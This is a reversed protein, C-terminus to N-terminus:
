SGATSSATGPRTTGAAACRWRSTTRARSTSPPQSTTAARPLTRDRGAPPRRPRQLRPSGHRVGSRGPRPSHGRALAAARGPERHRGGRGGEGSRPRPSPSTRPRRRRRAGGPRRGPPAARRRDGGGRGRLDGRRPLRRPLRGHAGRAVRQGIRATDGDALGRPERPSRPRARRGDHVRHERRGIRARRGGPARREDGRAAGPQVGDRCRPRAPDHEPARGRRLDRRGARARLAPARDGRARPGVGLPARIGFRMVLRASLGLSFIGMIVNGPLFALGVQLPSYGLVLQLYLASLFFWAFMAAAWLVGVVNSVAVNRLRFLALPVLPSRVRSEILLFLGHAGRGRRAAGADPATTWGVENGNVIAYVAIM